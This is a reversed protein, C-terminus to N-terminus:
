IPWIEVRGNRIAVDIPDVGARRAINSRLIYETSRAADQEKAREDELEEIRAQLPNPISSYGCSESEMEAAFVLDDAIASVDAPDLVVEHEDLIAELSMLWYSKRSM